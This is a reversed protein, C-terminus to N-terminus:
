RGPSAGVGGAEGEGRDLSALEGCPLGAERASLMGGGGEGTGGVKPTRIHEM